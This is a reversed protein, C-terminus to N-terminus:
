GLLVKELYDTSWAAKLRKAKIGGKASSEKKLLALALQRVVSFNAAGSGSLQHHDEDFAVDLVWHLKNEIQWHNRKAHLIRAADCPLSSIFFSDKTSHTDGLLRQSRIMVISNLRSWSRRQRLFSLVSEDDSVWCERIEIRGHGQSLQKAYDADIGIFEKRHACAFMTTVDEYLSGQNEKLALLYDGKQKTILRANEKQCGAADITVLCGQLELLQLLEPIAAIENSKEDCQRQGLVVENATSWASVVCIAKQDNKVQRSGRLQKGDIAIIDKLKTRITNVWSMFCSQFQEPDILMFVRRFTDHSAIGNKLPMYKRLWEIKEEGWNVVDVWNEAGCIVACITVLVMEELKYTILDSDRPDELKSFHHSLNKLPSIKM